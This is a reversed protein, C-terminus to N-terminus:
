LRHSLVPEETTTDADRIADRCGSQLKEANAPRLSFPPVPHPLHPEVQASILDRTVRPLEALRSMPSCPIGVVDHSIQDGLM